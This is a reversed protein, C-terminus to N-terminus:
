GRRLPGTLRDLGVQDALTRHPYLDRPRRRRRSGRASLRVPTEAGALVPPEVVAPPDLAEPVLHGLASAASRV